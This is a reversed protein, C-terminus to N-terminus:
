PHLDGPILWSAAFAIIGIGILIIGVDTLTGFGVMRNFITTKPGSDTRCAPLFMVGLGVLLIGGIRLLTKLRGRWIIRNLTTQHDPGTM